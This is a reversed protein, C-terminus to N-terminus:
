YTLTVVVTDTYAGPSPSAQAPVRGYVPVAQKAGTGAGTWTNSGQMWGWPQGRGSDRYLGYTVGEVGKSMRRQAPNTAGSLGPGVALVYPTGMTCTADITTQRDLTTSLVGHAGFDLDNVALTCTNRIRATATFGSTNVLPLLQGTCNGLNLLLANSSSVTLTSLYDGITAGSQPPVRGYVTRTVTTSGLVPITVPVSLIDSVNSWPGGLPQTRASDKYLGFGLSATGAKMYRLAPSAAGGSGQNVSVCVTAAGGLSIGTCTVSLTGSTDTPQGSTPNVDGFAIQTITATCSALVTQAAAGSMGCSLGAMALMVALVAPRAVGSLLKEMIKRPPAMRTEQFLRTLLSSGTM